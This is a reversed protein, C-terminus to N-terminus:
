RAPRENFSAPSVGERMARLEERQRVYERSDIECRAYREKLQMMEPDDDDLWYEDELIMSRERFADASIERRAYKEKLLIMLRNHEPHSKKRARDTLIAILAIVAIVVLVGFITAGGDGYGMFHGQLSGFAHRM